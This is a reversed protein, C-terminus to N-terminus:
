AAIRQLREPEPLNLAKGYIRQEYNSWIAAWNGLHSQDTDKMALQSLCKALPASRYLEPTFLQLNVVTEVDQVPIVPLYIRAKLDPRVLEIKGNEIWYLQKREGWRLFNIKARGRASKLHDFSQALDGSVWTEESPQTANQNTQVEIGGHVGLYVPIRAGPNIVTPNGFFQNRYPHDEISCILLIIELDAQVLRKQLFKKTYAGNPRVEGGEPYNPDAVGAFKTLERFTNTWIEQPTPM